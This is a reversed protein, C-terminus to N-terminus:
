ADNPYRLGWPARIQDMTRMLALSEDLPMVPSELLGERLCRMVEAAEYNLGNSELPLEAHVPEQGRVALTAKTAGWFPPHIHIMGETGCIRAEDVNKTRLACNLSALGGGPFRLIFSAQEDSGTEGLHAFGVAQEPVAGFAMVAFSLPYIGVDLLSGGGLELNLGRGKPDLNERNCRNAQVMRVEGIAGDDLWAKVKKIVPLHRTYMAEMLFRGEARAIAILQEAEAANITFAKECLVAKGARLCQTANAAHFVHPTAVYVVDVDPDAALAEYSGYCRPVGYDEGFEDAREQTRSAVALLEAGPLAHLARAFAQAIGGTALIGWRIRDM